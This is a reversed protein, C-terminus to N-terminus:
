EEDDYPIQHVIYDYDQAAQDRELERIEVQLENGGGINQGEGFIAKFMNYIRHAIEHDMQFKYTIWHMHETESVEASEMEKPFMEQITSISEADGYFQTVELVVQKHIESKSM